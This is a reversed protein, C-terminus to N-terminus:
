KLNSINQPVGAHAPKTWLLWGGNQWRWQPPHPTSSPGCHCCPHRRAHYGVEPPMQAAPCAQCCSRRGQTPLAAPSPSLPCPHSTLPTFPSPRRRAHCGVVQPTQAAPCTQCCSLRAQTPLAAPSLSLPCPALLTSTLLLPPSPFSAHCSPLGPLLVAAVTGPQLHPTCPPLTFPLLSLLLLLGHLAIVPLTWVDDGCLKHSRREDRNQSLKKEGERM